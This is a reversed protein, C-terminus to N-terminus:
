VLPRAKGGRIFLYSHRVGAITAQVVNVQDDYLDCLVRASLRLPALGNRADGELCVFVVGSAERTGCSHLVLPREDSGTLTFRASVYTAASMGTSRRLVSRLDDDFVRIVARVTGHVRDETLETITSHMPHAWAPASLGALMLLAVLLRRM